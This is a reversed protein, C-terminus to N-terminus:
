HRVGVVAEFEGLNPTLATAGRYRAFDTGKPDVLVPVGASRARAILSPADVIAGKAYDSLVAAAQGALERAYLEGVGQGAEPRPPEEVDLRILQQNRSLVRLKTITRLKDTRLFRCSM